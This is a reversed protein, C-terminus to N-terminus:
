ALWTPRKSGPGTLWRMQFLTRAAWDLLRASLSDSFYASRVRRPAGYGLSNGSTNGFARGSGPSAANLVKSICKILRQRIRTNEISEQTGIRSAPHYNLQNYRGGTVRFAAPELGTWGAM